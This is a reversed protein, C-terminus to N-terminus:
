FSPFPFGLEAEIRLRLKKRVRCVLTNLQSASIGHRSAVASASCDLGTVVSRVYDDYICLNRQEQEDLSEAQMLKLVSQAVILSLQSDLSRAIEPSPADYNDISVQTSKERGQRSRQFDIWINRAITASWTSFSGAQRYEFQSIKNVIRILAEQVFEERDHVNFVGRQILVGHIFPEVINTLWEYARPEGKKLAEIMSLQTVGM